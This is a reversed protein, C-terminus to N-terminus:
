GAPIVTAEQIALLPVVGAAFATRAAPNLHGTGARTGPHVNAIEHNDILVTTTGHPLVAEAFRAVTVMASEVHMHTDILGPVLYAGDADLVETDPGKTHGADGFMAVRVDKVAVDVGDHVERTHVNVLRGGRILLDAPRRGRCVDALTRTAASLPGAIAAAM